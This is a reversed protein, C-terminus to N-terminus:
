KTYITLGKKRQDVVWACLLVQFSMEFKPAATLAYDRPVGPSNTTLVPRKSTPYFKLFYPCGVDLDVSPLNNEGM